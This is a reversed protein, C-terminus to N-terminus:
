AALDVNDMCFQRWPVGNVRQIECWPVCETVVKLRVMVFMPYIQEVTGEAYVTSSPQRTRYQGGCASVSCYGIRDGVKLASMMKEIDSKKM